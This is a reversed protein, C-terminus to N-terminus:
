AIPLATRKGVLAKDGNPSSADPLWVGSQGRVTVDVIQERTFTELDSEGVNWQNLFLINKAPDHYDTTVVTGNGETIVFWDSETTYGSPLYAPVLVTFGALNSAERPDGATSVNRM